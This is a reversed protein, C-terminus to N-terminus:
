RVRAPGRPVGARRLDEEEVPEGGAGAAGRAFQTRQAAALYASKADALERSNIVAMLDGRQVPDGEKRLVEVVVGQLRPVVHAVRTEDAKIEGPM